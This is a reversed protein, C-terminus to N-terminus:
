WSVVGRSDMQTVSLLQRGLSPIHLVNNSNSPLNLVTSVPTIVVDGIGAVTAQAGTGMKVSQGVGDKYNSFASRDFTMHSICGFDIVWSDSKTSAKMAKTEAM